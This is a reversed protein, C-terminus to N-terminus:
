IKNLIFNKLSIPLKVIDINQDFDYGLTLSTLSSPLKINDLSQNFKWGFTLSTLSNPFIVNDLNQNFDYGFTLSTLQQPFVFKDLSSNFKSCFILNKIKVKDLVTLNFNGCYLFKNYLYDKYNKNDIYSIKFNELIVKVKNNIIKISQQTDYDTFDCICQVLDNCKFVQDGM